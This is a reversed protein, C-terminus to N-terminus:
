KVPLMFTVSNTPYKSDSMVEMKITHTGAEKPVFYVPFSIMNYGPLLKLYGTEVSSSEDIAAQIKENDVDFWVQIRATDYVAKMTVLNNFDSTFLSACMATDGMAMTDAYTMGVTENKSYYLTDKAFLLSDGEFQPNVYMASLFVGPTSEMETENLCGSLTIALISLIAFSYFNIRM